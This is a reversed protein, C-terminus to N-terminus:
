EAILQEVFKRFEKFSAESYGIHLKRVVGKKDIVAVTPIGTVGYAEFNKRAGFQVTWPLGFEAIFDNMKAFEADPKIDKEAGYYGYYTTFGVVELGKPQLDTYLAKMSPFAAKCPGCWHAFFDVLVVKGKWAELGPFTGYGREVALAPAANGPLTFQAKTTELRKKNPSKDAQNRIGENLTAVAADKDGKEFLITAVRTARQADLDELKQGALDKAQTVTRNVADIAAGPATEAIVYSYFGITRQALKLAADANAPKINRLVFSATDADKDNIATELLLSHANYLDAGSPNTTLYKDLAVKARKYLRAKSYVQAWDYGDRPSIRDMDMERAADAAITQQEAVNKTGNIRDLISRPNSQGFASLSFTALAVSAFVRVCLKM